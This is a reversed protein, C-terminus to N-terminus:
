HTGQLLLPERTETVQRQPSPLIPFPDAPNYRLGGWPWLPWGALPCQPWQKRLGWIERPTHTCLSKTSTVSSRVDSGEKGLLGLSTMGPSSVCVNGAKRSAYKRSTRHSQFRVGLGHIIDNIWLKWKSSWQTWPWQRKSANQLLDETKVRKHLQLEPSSPSCSATERTKIPNCQCM